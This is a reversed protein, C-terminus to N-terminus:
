SSIPPDSLEVVVVLQEDDWRCVLEDAEPENRVEDPRRLDANELLEIFKREAEEPTPHSGNEVFPV